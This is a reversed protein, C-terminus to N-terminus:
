QLHRSPLTFAFRSGKGEESEVSLESGQKLIFENCLMLGIGTSPEGETGRRTTLVDIRFLSDLFDKSMGIGTDTVSIEVSHNKLSNAAVTIRGKRPTFKVANNVLNRIIVQLMYRDAYVELNEPCEISVQINKDNIRDQVLHITGSIVPLLQLIEPNNPILGQNIRSWDLLDELLNYIGTASKKIAVAMERAKEVPMDPLEEALIETLGCLGSFPSRLDHALVSYFKDKESNSKRLKFENEEARQNEIMYYKHFYRIILFICISVFLTTLFSDTWREAESPYDRILEPRFYQLLYLFVICAMCIVFVYVQQRRNVMILSLVLVLAGVLMNEGSFGASYIWTLAVAAFSILILPFKFPEMIGKFRALYYVVSLLVVLITSIIVPIRSAFLLATVIISFISILLGIVIASLFLRDALSLNENEAFIYGIIGKAKM